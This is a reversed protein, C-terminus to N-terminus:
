KANGYPCHRCGNACCYGRQIHYFEKFVFFDGEKYYHIGEMLEEASDPFNSNQTQTVLNNIENLCAPCLCDYNTKSLYELTTQQLHITRCGCNSIDNANCFFTKQCRPCIKNSSIM